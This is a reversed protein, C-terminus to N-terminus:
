MIQSIVFKVEWCQSVYPMTDLLREHSTLMRKNKFTMKCVTCMQKVGFVMAIVKCVSTVLEFQIGKNDVHYYVIDGLSKQHV